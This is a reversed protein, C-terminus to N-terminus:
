SPEPVTCQGTMPLSSFPFSPFTPDLPDEPHQLFRQDAWTDPESDILPFRASSPDVGDLSKVRFIFDKTRVSELHDPAGLWVACWDTHYSGTAAKGVGTVLSVLEIGSAHDVRTWTSGGTATSEVSVEPNSRKCPTGAVNELRPMSDRWCYVPLDRRVESGMATNRAVLDAIGDDKFYPASGVKKPQFAETTEPGPLYTYSWPTALKPEDDALRALDALRQALLPGSAPGYLTMAGEYHQADFEEPTALYGVYENALGILLVHEAKAPRAMATPIADWVAKRVREGMQTTFEGPLAVIVVNPATDGIAYVGIPALGPPPSTWRMTSLLNLNLGMAEVQGPESKPGQEARAVLTKGERFGLLKYLTSRGDEAGGVAPAGTAGAEVTTRAQAGLTGNSDLFGGVEEFSQSGLAVRAFRFHINTNVAKVQGLLDCVKTALRDGLDVVEDHNRATWTPSVDGEAGNFFAVVSDTGLKTCTPSKELRADAVGFLDSSYVELRSPLVTPHVPVFAAVGLFTTSGPRRVALLEVRPRVAKCARGDPLELPDSDHPGPPCTSSVDPDLLSPARPNLLFAPLSRNRFFNDLKWVKSVELASADTTLLDADKATEWAKKVSFAIRRALFDFLARDLGTWPSIMSNFLASTYFNGPGHHTHTAALVLHERGIWPLGYESDHLLRTVEDGLGGPIAGLDTSILVLPTGNADRLYLTRAYLRTWFGRSVKGDISYGGLPVGPIPTIDVKHAGAIFNGPLNPDSGSRAPVDVLMTTPICATWILCSMVWGSLRTGSTARSM